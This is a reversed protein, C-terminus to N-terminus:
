APASGPGRQGSVIKATTTVQGAHRQSHEAAHFFLGLVTSPKQARGVLRTALLASEPTARYIEIARAVSADVQDLLSGPAVPQAPDIKEAAAAERQEPSLQRGDAYTLLREISGAIHRLHFGISGAGHPRRWIEEPTLSATAERVDYATQLLAHAAPQLLLPVGEVLGELWFERSM